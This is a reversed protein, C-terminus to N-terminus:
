EGKGSHHEMRGLRGTVKTYSQPQQDLTVPGFGRGVKRKKEKRKKKRKKKEWNQNEETNSKIFPMRFPYFFFVLM